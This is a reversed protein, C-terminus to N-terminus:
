ELWEASIRIKKDFKSERILIKYNEGEDLFAQPYIEQFKSLHSKYPPIHESSVEQRRIKILPLPALLDSLYLNKQELIKLIYYATAIGDARLSLHPFTYHDNTEAGLQAHHKQISKGIFTQGFRERILSLGQKVLDREVIISLDYTVVISSLATLETALLWIIKDALVIKGKEDVVVVRDGDGDYAFGIKAGKEKVKKQLATLNDSKPEAGRQSFLPDIEANLYYANPFIEKLALGAVGGGCDIVIDKDQIPSFEQLYEPLGDKSSYLGVNSWKPLSIKMGVRQKIWKEKEPGYIRSSPEHFQLGNWEPPNHSATIMVGPLCHKKVLFALVPSPLIGYDIVNIGCSLFGSVLSQKLMPTSLRGDGAVLVLDTKEKQTLKFKQAAVLAIRHTLEATLDQNVV